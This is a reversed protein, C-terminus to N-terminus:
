HLLLSLSAGATVYILGVLCVLQHGCQASWGSRFIRQHILRVTGLAPRHTIESIPRFFLSPCYITSLAAPEQSLGLWSARKPNINLKHKDLSVWQGKM